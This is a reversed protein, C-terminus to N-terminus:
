IKIQYFKMPDWATGSQLIGWIAHLLKRMVAVIAQLPKKGATILKNYFATVNPEHQVAVWAPMYLATRLYKNGAKSIHRQKEITSGSEHAKPDLGAHAVWQSAKMEEPLCNLESLIQIASTKGLGKVTLLLEYQKNISDDMKIKEIIKEELVKIRKALHKQNVEIDNNIIGEYVGRYEGSHRRSDERRMEGKLQYIRRCIAQIELQNKKPAQWAVFDMRKLYELILAADLPDTKARKMSAIGFHKIVKPNVVMVEVKATNFLLLALEFHYVGTAEMCVQVRIQHKTIYKLLKQHGSKDNTFLAIEDQLVGNREIKVVLEKSSVDIGVRNLKTVTTM